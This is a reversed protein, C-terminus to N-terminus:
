LLDVLEQLAEIMLRTLKRKRRRKKKRKQMVGDQTLKELKMPDM